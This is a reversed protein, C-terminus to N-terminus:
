TSGAVCEGKSRTVMSLEVPRTAAKKGKGNPAAPPSESSYPAGSTVIKPTGKSPAPLRSSSQSRPMDSRSFEVKETSRLAPSQPRPVEQSHEKIAAAAAKQKAVESQSLVVPVKIGGVYVGKLVEGHDENESDEDSSNLVDRGKELVLQRSGTAVQTAINM